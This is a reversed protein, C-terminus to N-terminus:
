NVKKRSQYTKELAPMYVDYISGPNWMVWGDYGSDYVAKKEAELEAAGYVPKGLTFAQLWPRIHEPEKIGLKQDRERARSIAIKIVKYPEANPVPIGLDGHPYHSPYVMPLVVDVAPSVKEWEQGVELAGSVTTVLGFIDATSRVGLKNLRSKAEKLYAALADPKSVGKSDPFVQKPLSPYPEPFRIYDFQVEGFGLKVLEEAVGINYEWLEHHYPNVWALGKKDRWVSGDTRRITWEPHVRATVSDKFVVIRAIPLIHHAKLTDLLGRVNSLKNATGANRAFEPNESRYNLGFEDKMDLVLANIETADAAAILKAMRKRSQTAWRNVYLARVAEPAASPKPQQASASTQAAAALLILALLSHRM